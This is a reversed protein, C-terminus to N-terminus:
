VADLGLRMDVVYANRLIWNVWINPDYSAALFVYAVTLLAMCPSRPALKPPHSCEIRLPQSAREDIHQTSPNSQSCLPPQICCLLSQKSLDLESSQM